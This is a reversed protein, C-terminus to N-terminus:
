GREETTPPPLAQALDTLRQWLDPAIRNGWVGSLCLFFRRDHTALAEVRDILLHGHLSLLNELPGAAIRFIQAESAAGEVLAIITSWADDPQERVLRAVEDMTAFDDNSWDAADDRLWSAALTRPDGM